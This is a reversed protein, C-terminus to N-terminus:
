RSPYCSYQIIVGVRIMENQKILGTGSLSKHRPLRYCLPVHLALVSLWSSCKTHCDWKSLLLTLLYRLWCCCFGNSAFGTLFIFASVAIMVIILPASSLANAVTEGLVLSAGSLKLITSLAIGGGFLALVGWDTNDSVQKWSM